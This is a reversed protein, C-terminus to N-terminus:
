ACLGLRDLIEKQKRTLESIIQEGNTLEIKKIKELELLLGTVNYKEVLDTELMIKMLRMRIMLALFCVFLLGRLTSEKHVNLPLAEIDNKFIDFGKEVIDKGRYISLCEKWDLEGSYLIFFKGMRNIRQAVAKRRVKIDFGNDVVGWEIYPSFRGAVQDVIEKPNMWRKLKVRRLKETANYLNKYFLNRETQERKPSYFAYGNVSVGMEMIAPKVFIPEGNYMEMLNPDYIEGHISSILQKVAKVTFPAPMVFSLNNSVLEVLNPMSFFGRDMVLTCEEIGLGRVKKITNKLTSVDVISRYLDYMVPIGLEKDM